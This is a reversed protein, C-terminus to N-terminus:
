RILESLSPACRKELEDGSASRSSWQKSGYCARGSRRRLKSGVDGPRHGAGHWEHWLLRHGPRREAGNDRRNRSGTGSGTGAAGGVAREPAEVAAPLGVAVLPATVVARAM